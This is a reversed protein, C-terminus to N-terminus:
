KPPSQAKRRIFDYGAEKFVQMTEAGGYGAVAIVFASFYPGVHWELMLWMTVMGVAGAILTKALAILWRFKVPADPAIFDQLYRIFGFFSAIAFALLVQNFNKFIGGLQQATDKEDM